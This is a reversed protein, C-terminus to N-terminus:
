KRDPREPTQVRIGASEQPNKRIRASEQPNERIRSMQMPKTNNEPQDEVEPKTEKTMKM